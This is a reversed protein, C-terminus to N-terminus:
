IAAAPVARTRRDDVRRRVNGQRHQLLEYMDTRGEQGRIEPGESNLKRLVDLDLV